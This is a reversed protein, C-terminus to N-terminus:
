TTDITTEVHLPAVVLRVGASDLDPHLRSQASGHLDTAESWYAGGRVALDMRDIAVDAHPIHSADPYAIASSSTWEWTNGALDLAGCGAAGAPCCGVPAPGQMQGRNYIAREPDPEGAQWPYDHRQMQTDYGAAAEWEAETPLRVVYGDPLLDPLQETLWAAFARAEYWTVGIVPQNAHKFAPDHWRAPATRAVEQRWQRGHATWWRAADDRYGAAVFPTFQAVTLPFRAIWFHPLNMEATPRHQKWGGIAYTGPRVLCWYGAPAGFQAPRQTLAQRWQAVTVPFRPDDLDSLLLGAHIREAVPLPQDRDQLLQVLGRRLDRQLRDVSVIDRLREWDREVGLEAALILDRYRREAPKPRGGEDPDILETLIRDIRDTLAPELSHIVGLGLAIPERWHDDTRHQLVQPVADPQLLMHRGAGYEQFTLHAFTYTEQEEDPLLLGSRESLYDLCRVAVAAANDRKVGAQEFYKRLAKEIASGSLQGHGDNSFDLQHADYSLQDIIPRLDLNRLAPEDLVDALSQGGKQQDWRGLLQKMICEYLLSRDPPLDGHENDALVLAMMTLLLPTEALTRLKPTAILAEILQQQMRTRQEASLHGAVDPNDYWAAVFHRMQGLTFPAITEVPWGLQRRLDESFARTRCTIVVRNRHYRRAFAQVAQLTTRRDAVTPTAVPPVEDLGDCCLLTVGHMLSESLLDDVKDVDYRQMEARLAATVITEVTTEATGDTALRTALTRLPLIIPLLRRDDAWGALATAAHVEDLGRRALAWALHRLFTSKGCGPAGLLVLQQHANLGEMVLTARALLMETTPDLGTRDPPLVLSLMRGALSQVAGIWTIAQSPLAHDPDYAEKLPARPDNREFFTGLDDPLGRAVVTTHTGLALEVYLQAPAIGAGSERHEALTPLPLHRLKAALRDLYWILRRREDESPDRGYIITGLNVGVIQGYNNGHVTIEGRYLNGEVKDGMVKDGSVADGMQDIHAGIGFNVGGSQQQLLTLRQEKAALQDRLHQQTDPMGTLSDIVSRLQAIEAQLNTIEQHQDSTM